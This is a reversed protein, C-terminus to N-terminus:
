CPAAPRRRTSGAIRSPPSCSASISTATSSGSPSPSSVRSGPRTASAVRCSSACKRRRGAARGAVSAADDARLREEDARSRSAIALAGAVLALVLLVAAISLARALRRRAGVERALQEHIQQTDRGSRDRGAEIFAAILPPVTPQRGTWEIAAQLRGGRYVTDDTRGEDDWVRAAVRLDRELVLDARAEELWGALLPWARFVVEHVIEVTDEGRVVLRADVLADVADAQTPLCSTSVSM